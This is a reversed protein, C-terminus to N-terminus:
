GAGAVSAAGERAASSLWAHMREMAETRLANEPRSLWWQAGPLRPYGALARLRGKRLDEDVALSSLCAIGHGRLAADRALQADDYIAAVGFRRLLRQTEAEAADPLRARELCVLRALEHHREFPLGTLQEALAPACVFLWEDRLWRADEWGALSLPRPSILLDVDIEDAQGPSEDISLLPVIDPHAARLAALRPQLWGQLLFAPGVLAVLGPDTYVAIRDLGRRLTELARGVSQQLMEGAFTLEVGRGVRHFLPQGVFEELQQIQHSIASQSLHLSEAARSFSGIRAAAEFGALLRLSPLRSGGAHESAGEGEPADHEPM